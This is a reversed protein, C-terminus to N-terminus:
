GWVEWTAIVEAGVALGVLEVSACIQPVNLEAAPAVGVTARGIVNGAADYFLVSAGAANAGILQMTHAGAVVQFSAKGGAGAIANTSVHCPMLPAILQTAVLLAKEENQFGLGGVGLGAEMDDDSRVLITGRATASIFEWWTAAGIGHRVALMVPWTPDGASPAAAIQLGLGTNSQELRAVHICWTGSGLRITQGLLVPAGPGVPLTVVVGRNIAKRDTGRQLDARAIRAGNGDDDDDDDYSM